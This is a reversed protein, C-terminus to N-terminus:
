GDMRCCMNYYLRDMRSCHQIFRRYKAIDQPLEELLNEVNHRAVTAMKDKICINTLDLTVDFLSNKVKLDFQPRQFHDWIIRTKFFLDRAYKSASNSWM